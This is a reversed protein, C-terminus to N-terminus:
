PKLSFKTVGGDVYAYHWWGKINKSVMSKRLWYTNHHQMIGLYSNVSSQFSQRTSMDPKGEGFKELQRNHKKISGYFNGKIRKGM